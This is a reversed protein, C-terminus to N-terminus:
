RRLLMAAMRLPGCCASERRTARTRRRVPCKGASALCSVFYRFLRRGVSVGVVEASKRARILFTPSCRLSPAAVLGSLRSGPFEKREPTLDTRRGETRTGRVPRESPPVVPSFSTQFTVFHIELYFHCFTLNPFRELARPSAPRPGRSHPSSMDVTNSLSVSIGHAVRWENKPVTACGPLAPLHDPSATQTLCIPRPSTPPSSVSESGFSESLPFLLFQDVIGKVIGKWGFLVVLTSTCACVSWRRM